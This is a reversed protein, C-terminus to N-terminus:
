RYKSPSVGYKEKFLKGFYSSSAFGCDTAIQVVSKDSERLMNAAHSLRYETLYEIPKKNVFHQFSRFCESRSIGTHRAIDQICINESYHNHIYSLIDKAKTGLKHNTRSKTGVKNQKEIYRLTLRWVRSIIEVCHLEYGHSHRNLAYIQKLSKTIEVGVDAKNNIIFGMIDSKIIPQFFNRFMTGDKGGTFLSPLFSITFLVANDCAPAQTAIHLANSNIFILEGAKLRIYQGDIYYDLEGSLLVGYEFEHHWHCSTTKDVFTNFDGTWVFLPVSPDSYEFMERMTQDFSFQNHEM